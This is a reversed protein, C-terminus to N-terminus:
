NNCIKKEFKAKVLPKTLSDAFKEESPVFDVEISKREILDRTVHYKTDIHKSRRHFEPNLALRICSQNDVHIVTPDEQERMSHRIWVAEKAGSALAVYEAETSSLAVCGQKQSCWTIPSENLTLLYGSTSKREVKDGAYDSDTYGTIVIQNEPSYSIGVNATGKLYRLVEKAAKWHSEDYSSMFWSLRSVAFAIGPRTCKSLYLLSGILEQFPINTKVKKAPVLDVYPQMPVSAAKCLSMNFRELMSHVYAEQSLSIEGTGKDMIIQMGVYSSPDHVKIEFKKQIAKIVFDVAERRPSIVLGDDVYLALYVVQDKVMGTYVSSDSETKKM